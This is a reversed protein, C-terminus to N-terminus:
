SIWSSYWVSVRLSNSLTVKFEWKRTPACKVSVIFTLLPQLFFIKPVEEIRFILRFVLVQWQLIKCFLVEHIGLQGPTYRILVWQTIMTQLPTGAGGKKICGGRSGAQGGKKFNKHVRGETRNWERKLYKLCNGWGWTFGEQGLGVM